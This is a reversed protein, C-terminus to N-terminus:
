NINVQYLELYKVDFNKEDNLAYNEDYDFDSKSPFTYNQKSLFNHFIRLDTGYGFDMSNGDNNWIVIKGEKAKYIKMKNLNFLFAKSDKMEYGEINKFKEHVYGGFRKDKKTQILILIDNKNLYSNKFKEANEGDKESNYLLQLSINYPQPSIAKYLLMKEKDNKIIKSKTSKNELNEIREILNSITANMDKITNKLEKIEQKQQNYCKFIYSMNENIDNMDNEMKTLNIIMSENGVIKLDFNLSLENEKAEVIKISNAEYLDMINMKVQEFNDFMKFYKHLIKLEEFKLIIFYKNLSIADENNDFSEKAIIKLSNNGIDYLSFIYKNNNFELNFEMFKTELSIKNENFNIQNNSM